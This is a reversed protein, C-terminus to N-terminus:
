LVVHSRDSKRMYESDKRWTHFCRAMEAYDVMVLRVLKGEFINDSM